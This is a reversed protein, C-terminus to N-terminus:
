SNHITLLERAASIAAESPNKGSLMEAIELERESASLGVIQTVTADETDHKFVKFHQGGRAAIQPLHTITLVQIDTAMEAMMEGMRGAVDGSVGTDIEDFIITPLEASKAILCKLALMLRAIEGGSAISAIPRLEANKNATFALEVVDQGDASYDKGSIRVEIRANEMGLLRLRAVLYEAIAERVGGRKETLVDAASALDLALQAVQKELAGIEEDFSDIRQLKADYEDRLTILEAVTDVRHKQELAYITNLREEVWAKRQPDFEMDGCMDAVEAAVDKLEVYLSEVRETLAEAQKMYRAAHAVRQKVERMQMVVGYGDDDLRSSADSLDVKIEEAHNLVELEAELEAQETEILNADNLQDFQFQAYDRESAWKEAMERVEALKATTARWEGYVKGYAEREAGSQAIIDVIKLQFDSNNLLLNEHQSHIDILLSAITRMQQLTVPTDNVFARSKGAATVERRIVCEEEWDLGYEEFITSLQSNLTSGFTKSGSAIFLQVNGINDEQKYPRVARADAILASPTLLQANHMTCQANHMSFTAEVVCKAAGERVSKSDARAGMVLALAGMIISKGAGTEGTIVSFGDELSLELEDILAYQSIYLHKLM